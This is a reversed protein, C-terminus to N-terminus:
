SEDDINEEEDDSVAGFDGIEIEGIEEDEESEDVQVALDSAISYPTELELPLGVKIPEDGGTSFMIAGKGDSLRSVLSFYIRRWRDNWFSKCFSRRLRFAKLGDAVPNVGDDTFAVHLRISYLPVPSLAARASIAAHWFSIRKKSFGVLTIPRTKRGMPDLYAQKIPQKDASPLFYAREQSLQLGAFGLQRLGTEWAANLLGNFARRRDIKQIAFDAFSIENLWTKTATDVHRLHDVHEGVGYAVTDPVAFSILTNGFSYAPINAGLLQSEMIKAAGPFTYVHLREPFSIPLWSAFAPEKIDSIQDSRDQLVTAFLEISAPNLNDKPIKEDDFQKTLKRLGEGWNGEFSIALRNNLTPPLQTYPLDDVKLQIIFDQLSLEKEIGRAINIENEVGEANRSARSTVVLVKTAEERIKNEIEKWHKSGGKLDRLDAWVRFGMASLRSGLWITFDNDTPNAHSIFILKRDHVNHGEMTVQGEDHNGSM